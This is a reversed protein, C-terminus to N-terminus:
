VKRICVTLEWARLRGKLFVPARQAVPQKDTQPPPSKLPEQKSMQSSPKLKPIKEMELVKRVRTQQWSPGWSKWSKWRHSIVERSRPQLEYVQVQGPIDTVKM